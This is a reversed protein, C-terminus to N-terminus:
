RLHRKAFACGSGTKLYKEFKAARAEDHFEIVVDVDWPGGGSTHACKGANHVGLRKAVDSTVGTYYRPPKATNKLIYVFYKPLAM